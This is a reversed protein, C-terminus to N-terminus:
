AKLMEYLRIVFSSYKTCEEQILTPDIKIYKRNKKIINLNQILLHLLTFIQRGIPRQHAVCEKSCLRM